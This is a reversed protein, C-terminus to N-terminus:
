PAAPPAGESPAAPRVQLAGRAKLAHELAEAMLEHGSANLHADHPILHFPGREPHDLFPPAVRVFDVGVERAAQEARQQAALPDYRLDPPGLERRIREIYPPWVEAVEPHSFLFFRAGAAQSSRQMREVLAAFLRWDLQELAAPNVYIEQMLGLLNRQEWGAFRARLTFIRPQLARYFASSQIWARPGGGYRRVRDAIQPLELRLEDGNLRFRPKAQENAYAVENGGFDNLTSGYLIIDPRYLPALRELLLLAQDTAYGQVGANIVEVDLGREQLRAALRETYTAEQALARGVVMSDGVIMIRLVGPERERRTEGPAIGDANTRFRVIGGLDRSETDLNPRNVWGIERDLQWDSTADRYRWYGEPVWLRTALELLLAIVVLSGFALALSKLV